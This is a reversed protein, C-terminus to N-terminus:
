AGVTPLVKLLSVIPWFVIVCYILVLGGGLLATLVVPTVFRLRALQSNATAKLCDAVKGITNPEDTGQVLTQVQGKINSTAGTLECSILVAEEVTVGAQVLSQSIRLVVMSVAGNVYRGGGFWSAVKAVGGVFLVILGLILGSALVAIMGPLWPLVDFNSTVGIGAPFMLDERFFEISPVVLVDFMLLGLLTTLAVIFLYIFTWQLARRVDRSAMPRVSLGELVPLMSGTRNFVTLCARYWHPLRDGKWNTLNPEGITRQFEPDFAKLQEQLNDIEAVTLRHRNGDVLPVGAILAAKLEDHFQAIEVQDM